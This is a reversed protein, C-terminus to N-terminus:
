APMPAGDLRKTIAAIGACILGAPLGLILMATFTTLLFDGRGDVSFGLGSGPHITCLFEGSEKEARIIATSDPPVVSGAVQHPASDQNVVRLARGDTLTVTKPVFAPEGRAVREATGPPIIFDVSGNQPPDLLLWWAFGLLWATVAAVGVWPLWERAFVRFRPHGSM